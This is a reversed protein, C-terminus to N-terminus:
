RARRASLYVHTSNEDHDKGDNEKRKSNKRIKKSKNKRKKKVGTDNNQVKM